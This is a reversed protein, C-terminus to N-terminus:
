GRRGRLRGPSLFDRIEAPHRLLARAACRLGDAVRGAHLYSGALVRDNRGLVRGRAARLTAPVEPNALAKELLRVSDRELLGVDRSMNAEHVRYLVLPEDVYAFPTRVSLRLWLDWDAGLSLDPDFGGVERLLDRECVVTSPTGVVNGLCLLDEVLSGQRVTRRVEKPTLDDAVLQFATYSARADPEQALAELQRHTKDPQWVDDADLFAVYRGRAAASGANRALAVGANAQRVIRIREGYPALRALTDDTSGDDVVVIEVDRFTQQLASDVAQSVHRAANFAPIVVSLAPTSM